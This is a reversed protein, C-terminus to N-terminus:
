AASSRCQPTSHQATIRPSASRQVASRQAANRQAAAGSHHATGHQALLSMHLRDTARYGIRRKIGFGDSLEPDTAGDFFAKLDAWFTAGDHKKLKRM